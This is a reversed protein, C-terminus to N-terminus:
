SGGLCVDLAKPPCEGADVGDIVQQLIMTVPDGHSLAVSLYGFPSETLSCHQHHVLFWSWCSMVCRINALRATQVFTHVAHYVAVGLAVLVSSSPISLCSLYLLLTFTKM